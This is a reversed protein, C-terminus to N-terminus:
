PPAPRPPTPPTGPSTRPSAAAPFWITENLYRLLAGQDMAPGAADAVPVIGLVRMQISGHGDVYQDRGIISVLPFMQMSTKWVFGPPDTTYTEEATFPMWGGTESLKFRGTQKLHITTPIPKGVVQAWRLWRQVPEPLTALNAETIVRSARETSAGLLANVDADLRREYIAQGIGIVAGAVLVVAAVGGLVKKAVSRM